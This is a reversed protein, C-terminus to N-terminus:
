EEEETGEMRREYAELVAADWRDAIADWGESPDASWVGDTLCPNGALESALGLPTGDWEGPEWVALWQRRTAVETVCALLAGRLDRLVECDYGSGIGRQGNTARAIIGVRQRTEM